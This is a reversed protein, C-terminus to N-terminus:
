KGVSDVTPCYDLSLEVASPPTAGCDLATGQLKASGGRENNSSQCYQGNACADGPATAGGKCGFSNKTDLSSCYQGDAKGECSDTPTFNQACERLPFPLPLRENSVLQREAPGLWTIEGGGFVDLTADFSACAQAQATPKPGEQDTGGSVKVTGSVGLETGPVVRVYLAVTRYFWVSIKMDISCKLTLGGQLVFEYRHKGGNMSGEAQGFPAGRDIGFKGKFTAGNSYSYSAGLEGSAELDCKLKTQYKVTTPIVPPTPLMVEVEGLGIEKSIVNKKDSFAVLGSDRTMGGKLESTIKACIGAFVDAKCDFEMSASPVHWWQEQRYTLMGKVGLDFGIGGTVSAGQTASATGEYGATSSLLKGFDFKVPVPFDFPKEYDENQPRTGTPAATLPFGFDAETFLEQLAAQSGLVHIRDGAQAVSQVKLLFGLPNSAPMGPARDGYFVIGPKLDTLLHENGALPISLSGERVVVDRVVNADAAFTNPALTYTNTPVHEGSEVPVLDGETGCASTVLALLSVSLVGCSSLRLGGVPM